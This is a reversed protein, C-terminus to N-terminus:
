PGWFHAILGGFTHCNPARICGFTHCNPARIAGFTHCNPARTTVLVVWFLLFRPGVYPWLSQTKPLDWYIYIYIYM